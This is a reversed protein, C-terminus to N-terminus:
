ETKICELKPLLLFVVYINERNQTADEGIQKLGSTETIHEAKKALTASINLPRLRREPYDIRQTSM